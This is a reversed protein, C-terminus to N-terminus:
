YGAPIRGHLFTITNPARWSSWAAKEPHTPTGATLAEDVAWSPEAGPMLSHLGSQIHGIVYTHGAIRCGLSESMAAAFAHGPAAGFTECTRFWMLGHDGPLMRKKIRELPERLEHDRLLCDVGFSASGIKAAGWKGHGWYQVEAISRQPEYDTLWALAEPWSSVGHCADIRRLGRYLWGGSSWAHSLGPLLKRGRCTRDYIMLRLPAPEVDAAV